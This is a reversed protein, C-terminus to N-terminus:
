VVETDSEPIDDSTILLEEWSVKVINVGDGGDLEKDELITEEEMSTCVERFILDRHFLCKMFQLAEVIDAQLRNCRKSLTIGALSFARESSVSSAM